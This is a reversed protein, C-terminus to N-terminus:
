IYPTSQLIKEGNSIRGSLLKGAARGPLDQRAGEPESNSNQLGPHHEAEPHLDAPQGQLAHADHRLFLLRGPFVFSLM